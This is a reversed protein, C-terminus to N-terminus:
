GATMTDLIICVADVMMYLNMMREIKAKIAAGADANEGDM